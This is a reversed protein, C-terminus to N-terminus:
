HKTQKDAYTQPSEYLDFSSRDLGTVRLMKRIDENVSSLPLDRKEYLDQHYRAVQTLQRVQSSELRSIQSLDILLEPRRRSSTRDLDKLQQDLFTGLDQGNQESDTEPKSLTLVRVKRGTAQNTLTEDITAITM